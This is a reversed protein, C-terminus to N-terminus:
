KKAHGRISRILIAFIGIVVTTAVISWLWLLISNTLALVIFGIMVAPFILAFLNTQKM